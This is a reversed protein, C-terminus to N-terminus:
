NYQLYNPRSLPNGTLLRQVEPHNRLANPIRVANWTSTYPMLYMSHVTEPFINGNKDVLVCRSFHYDVIVFPGDGETVLSWGQPSSDHKVLWVVQGVIFNDSGPRGFTGSGRSQNVLELTFHNTGSPPTGRLSSREGPDYFMM